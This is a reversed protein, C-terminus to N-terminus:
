SVVVVVVVANCPSLSFLLMMTVFLSLLNDAPAMPPMTAAALEHKNINIIRKNTRARPRLICPDLSSSAVDEGEEEAFMGFDGSNSNSSSTVSESEEEM